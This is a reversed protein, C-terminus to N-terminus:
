LLNFRKMREARQKNVNAVSEAHKSQARRRANKSEKEEINAIREREALKANKWTKFNPYKKPFRRHDLEYQRMEKNEFNDISLRGGAQQYKLYKIQKKKENKIREKDALKLEKKTKINDIINEVLYISHNM